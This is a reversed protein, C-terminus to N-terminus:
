DKGGLVLLHAQSLQLALTTIDPLETAIKDIKITDEQLIEKQANRWTVRLLFMNTTEDFDLLGSLTIKAKKFIAQQYNDYYNYQYRHQKYIIQNEVMRTLKKALETHNANKAVFFSDISVTKVYKPSNKINIKRLPPFLNGVIGVQIVMARELMKRLETRNQPLPKEYFSRLSYVTKSTAKNSLRYEFCYILKKQLRSYSSANFVDEFTNRDIFKFGIILDCPRKQTKLYNKHLNYEFQHEHSVLINAAVETLLEAYKQKDEIGEINGIYTLSDIAFNFDYNQSYLPQTILCLLGFFLKFIYKM